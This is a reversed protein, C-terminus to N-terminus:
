KESKVLFFNVENAAEWQVFHGTNPIFHLQARPIQRTGNEAVEKTTLAPHLYKNPILADAAGFLVLTPVKITKLRDFVPEQLMGQVCQPIMNCYNDYEPTERMIMRDEIMFLADGPFQYFNLEFNKKIQEPTTAKLVAPTYVLKFWAREQETFTEFGAPDLLVLRQACTSDQLLATIAIQGGMSHGVLAVNTLHLAKILERVTNAFFTMTYPADAPATSRGYGPLDFAICRAHQRLTDTNKQWCKLNSGLGHIMLLTPVSSDAPGDDTYAIRIGSPLTVQRTNAPYVIEQM